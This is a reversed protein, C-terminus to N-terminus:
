IGTLTITRIRTATSSISPRRRNASACALIRYLEDLANEKIARLKEETQASMPAPEGAWTRAPVTGQAAATENESTCGATENEWYAARIRAATQRLKTNVLRNMQRTNSSQFTEEMAAKPIVSYKKVLNVFMDWQGGDAIGTEEIFSLLRDDSPRDALAIVSELFYNAKELKDWFAMYNQSLEFQPINCKKAIQERLTNLAAFIWCRGSAKQNTVKMTPIDVSFTFQVDKRAAPRFSIDNVATKYLANTVARCLPNGSYSDHFASLENESIDKFYTM